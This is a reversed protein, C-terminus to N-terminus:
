LFKPLARIRNADLLVPSGMVSSARNKQQSADHNDHLADPMTPKQLTLPIIADGRGAFGSAHEEFILAADVDTLSDQRPLQLPFTDTPFDPPTPPHRDVRTAGSGNGGSASKTFYKQTIVDAQRDVATDELALSVYEIMAPVVTTKNGDTVADDRTTSLTHVHDARPTGDHQMHFTYEGVPTGSESSLCATAPSALGDSNVTDDFGPPPPLLSSGVNDTDSASEVAASDMSRNEPLFFTGVECSDARSPFKTTDVDAITRYPYWGQHPFNPANTPLKEGVVQHHTVYRLCIADAEAMVHATDHEQLKSEYTNDGDDDTFFSTIEISGTNQTGPRAKPDTPPYTLLPDGSDVDDGSQANDLASAFVDTSVGPFTVMEDIATDYHVADTENSAGLLFSDAMAAISNHQNECEVRTAVNASSTRTIDDVRLVDDRHPVSIPPPAHPRGERQGDARFAGPENDRHQLLHRLCACMDCLLLAIEEPVTTRSAPNRTIMWPIPLEEAGPSHVDRSLSVNADMSPDPPVESGQIARLMDRAATVVAQFQVSSLQVDAPSTSADEYQVAEPPTTSGRDIPDQEPPRGTSGGGVSMDVLDGHTVHCEQEPDGDGGVVPTDEVADATMEPDHVSRAPSSAATSTATSTSTSDDSTMGESVVDADTPYPM